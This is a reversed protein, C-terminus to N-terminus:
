VLRMSFSTNTLLLSVTREEATVLATAVALILVVPEIDPAKDTDPAEALELAAPETVLEAVDPVLLTLANSSSTEVGAGVGAVAGAEVAATVPEGAGETVTDTGDLVPLFVGLLVLLFSFPLLSPLAAVTAGTTVAAAETTGETETAGFAAAAEGSLLVMLLQLTGILILGLCGARTAGMDTGMTTGATVGAITDTGITAM